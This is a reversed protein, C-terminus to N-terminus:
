RQGPADPQADAGSARQQAQVLKARTAAAADPRGRKDYLAALQRYVSAGADLTLAREYHEVAADLQGLGALTTSEEIGLTGAVLFEAVFDVGKELEISVGFM